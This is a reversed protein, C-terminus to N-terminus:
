RGHRRPKGLDPGPLGPESSLGADETRIRLTLLAANLLSFVAAYLPLGFALPLVAIEGAVVLYNPHRLFRYPGRRVLAAGPLVIIRTTWRRGLSAIVWIRLAQFVAFVALWALRVPRSPALLWLGLLWAGHMAVLFPYHGAGVERAGEGLLRITNRRALVLEALRQFTVFLLIGLSLIV